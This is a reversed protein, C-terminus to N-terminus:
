KRFFIMGHLHFVIYGISKISNYTEPFLIVKLQYIQFQCNQCVENEENQNSRFSLINTTAVQLKNM